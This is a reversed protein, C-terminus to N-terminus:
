KGPPLGSAPAADHPAGPATEECTDRLMRLHEIAAELSVPHMPTELDPRSLIRINLDIFALLADRRLNGCEIGRQVLEVLLVDLFHMQGSVSILENRVWSLSQELATIRKALDDSM